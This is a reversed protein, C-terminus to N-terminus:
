AEWKKDMDLLRYLEAYMHSLGQLALDIREEEPWKGMNAQRALQNLNNGVAGLEGVLKSYMAKDPSPRKSSRPPRWVDHFVQMRLYASVSLSAHEARKQLQEHESKSVRLRIAHDLKRKESQSM